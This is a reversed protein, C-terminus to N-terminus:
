ARRIQLSEDGISFALKLASRIMDEDAFTDKISIEFNQAPMHNIYLFVNLISSHLHSVCALIGEKLGNRLLRGRHTCSIPAGTFDTLRIDPFLKQLLFLGAAHETTKYENESCDSSSSAGGKSTFVFIPMNGNLVGAYGYRSSECLICSYHSLLKAWSTKSLTKMDSFKCMESLNVFTTDLNVQVPRENKSPLDIIFVNSRKESSLFLRADYSQDQTQASGKVKAHQDEEDIQSDNPHGKSNSMSKRCLLLIAAAIITGDKALAIQVSIPEHARLLRKSHDMPNIIWQYGEYEDSNAYGILDMVQDESLTIKLHQRVQHVVQQRMVEKTPGRLVLCDEKSIVQYSTKSTLQHVLIAQIAFDFACVSLKDPQTHFSDKSLTEPVFSNFFDYVSFLAQSMIQEDLDMIHAQTMPNKYEGTDILPPNEACTNEREKHKLSNVLFNFEKM